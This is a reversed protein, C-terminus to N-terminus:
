TILPNSTLKLHLKKIKSKIAWKLLDIRFTDVTCREYCTNCGKHTKRFQNAADSDWIKELAENRINGFPKTHNCPSVNGVADIYMLTVGAYCPLPRKQKMLWDELFLVYPNVIKPDIRKIQALISTKMNEDLDLTIDSNDGFYYRSKQVTKCTFDYNKFYQYADYFQWYNLASLTMNIGPKLGHKEVIKISELALKFANKIGRMKNQIENLGDISIQIGGIKDKNKKLLQDLREPLFGNTGLDIKLKTADHIIDIISCLDRRLFIEGGTLSISKLENMVNNKFIQEIETLTLEKQDEKRKWFNCMVCRSNCRHTVILVCFDPKKAIRLKYKLYGPYNRLYQFFWDKM